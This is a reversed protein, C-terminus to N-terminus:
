TIPGCVKGLGKKGACRRRTSGLTERRTEGVPTATTAVTADAVRGRAKPGVKDGQGRSSARTRGETWRDRTSEYVRGLLSGLRPVCRQTGGSILCLVACCLEPSVPFNLITSGCPLCVPSIIALPCPRPSHSPSGTLHDREAQGARPRVGSQDVRRASSLVERRKQKHGGPRGVPRIALQRALPRDPSPRGRPRREGREVREQGGAPRPGVSLPGQQQQRALLILM